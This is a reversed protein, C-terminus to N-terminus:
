KSAISRCLAKFEKKNALIENRQGSLKIFVTMEGATLIAALMSSATTNKSDQLGTLDVLISDFGGTTTFREQKEIFTDLEADDPVTIHVQEMWRIINAKPGGADGGLSVISCDLSAFGPIAFTALRIGGAAEQVKWGAPTTWKLNTDTIAPVPLSAMDMDSPQGTKLEAMQTLFPHPDSVDPLNLLPSDITTEHYQRKAVPNDCSMGLFLLILCLVCLLCEKILTSQKRDM